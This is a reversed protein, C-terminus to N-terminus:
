TPWVLFFGPPLSTDPAFPNGRKTKGLWKKSLQWSVWNPTGKSNNYSLVYQRKKMLFNNPKERDAVAGSPNGAFLHEDGEGARGTTTLALLVAVVLAARRLFTFM